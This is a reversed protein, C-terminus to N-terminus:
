NLESGDTISVKLIQRWNKGKDHLRKVLVGVIEFVYTSNITLVTQKPQRAGFM